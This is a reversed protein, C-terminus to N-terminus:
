RGDADGETEPFGVVERVVSAPRGMGRVHMRALYEGIIGLAFLQAGSFIAIISALFPFGPISGGRIFYGAVVYVLIALGLFTFAFGTLTALKLPLTSFGTFMNISHILLKGLTYGSRGTPRPDHRVRIAAFNTTGWTLLVDIAVWPGEYGAFATRTETRFARFASAQCATEIGMASRLALKTVWSALNRWIGHQDAAPTGYVVDHGQALKELLRPVEEPPHQLDDDMTITAEYRAARIGNLLAGHQGYNRTLNIGRVWPHQAALQKVVEWSSDQSGDNVLIVEYQPAAAPLVKGLREILPGLSSESNYVPIVVSCGPPLQM